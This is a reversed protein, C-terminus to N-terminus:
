VEDTWFHAGARGGASAGTTRGGEPLSRGGEWYSPEFRTDEQARGATRCAVRSSASRGPVGAGEGWKAQQCEPELHRRIKGPNKLRKYNRRRDKVMQLSM